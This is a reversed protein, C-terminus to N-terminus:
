PSFGGGGSRGGRGGRGGGGSTGRESQRLARLQEKLTAIQLELGQRSVGRKALRVEVADYRNMAALVRELEGKAKGLWKVPDEGSWGMYKQYDTLSEWARDFTRRWDEVYSDFMEQAESELMRFEREGMLLALDEISDATGDSICFNEATRATFQVSRKDSSDFLYQGNPDLRWIVDRGKWSASLVFEPRIMADALVLPYHGYELFSKIYAMTAERMKGRIDEDPWRLFSANLYEVGGGLRAEPAMYMDAWQMVVISSIGHADHIYVVQRFDRLDDQFFNMLDRYADFDVEGREDPDIGYLQKLPEAPFDECDVEIIIYDPNKARIDDEMERYIEVNVDTGMQGKMPIVYFSTASEDDRDAQRLGFIGTDANNQTKLRPDDADWEDDPDASASEEATTSAAAGSGRQIESINAKKFTLKTVIGHVLAEIVVETDTESVITGSFSRGDELYIVDVADEAASAAPTLSWAAVSLLITLFLSLPATPRMKM